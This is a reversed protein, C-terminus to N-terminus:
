VQHDFLLANTSQDLWVERKTILHDVYWIGHWSRVITIDHHDFM